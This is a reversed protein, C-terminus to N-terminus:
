NLNLAIEKLLRDDAQKLHLLCNFAKFLHGSLIRPWANGSLSAEECASFAEAYWASDDFHPPLLFPSFFSNECVVKKERVNM